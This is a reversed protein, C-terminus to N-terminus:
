MEFEKSNMILLILEIRIVDLNYVLNCRTLNGLTWGNSPIMPISQWVLLWIPALWLMLVGIGTDLMRWTRAKAFWPLLLRAGYGVGFFWLLSALLAGALFGWKDAMSLTGAIGGLIVVTDLYVHPNLFTLAFAMMAVQKRTQKPTQEAQSHLASAGTYASKFCRYAYVSLFLAGVIALSLSLWPFKAFLTGAGMIGFTMLCFDGLFCIGAVVAIHQKSLGQKLLYANQAGIAVILGMSVMLGHWFVMTTNRITNAPM